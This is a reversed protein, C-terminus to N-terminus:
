IGNRYEEIVEYDSYPIKVGNMDIYDECGKGLILLIDDDNMKNLAYIIAEKRDTISIFDNGNKIDKIIDNPNEFRPNDSTIIPICKYSLLINGIERRKEKERNGGCGIVVYVKKDYKEFEMLVNRVAEATHAYDIFIKKNGLLILNMRGDVSTITHLFNKIIENSIHYIKGIAFLPLINYVNFRGFLFSRYRVGDYVFSIGNFNSSIKSAYIENERDIGFGIINANTHKIIQKAVPDDFNVIAYSKRDLNYFPICKNFLYNEMNKHYDLHDESFNTFVLTSFPIKNVRLESVAISSIEMVVMKIENNYANLFYKYLTAIDPTTNNHKIYKDLYYCGNSGILMARISSYKFLEYILTSTTTKGNTGIIGIIKIGKFLFKYFTYLLNSLTYTPDDVLVNNIKPNLVICKSIITNAGNLIAENIYDMNSTTSVYVCGNICDKSNSTILTVDHNNKVEKIKNIKLLYNVKM